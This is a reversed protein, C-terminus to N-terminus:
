KELDELSSRHEALLDGVLKPDVGLSLLQSAIELVNAVVYKQYYTEAMAEEMTDVDEGEMQDEKDEAENDVVDNVMEVVSDSCEDTMEDFTMNLLLGVETVAWLCRCADLEEDGGDPLSGIDGDALALAIAKFVFPRKFFLNTQMATMAAQIRNRGEEPIKCSFDSELDMVLVEPDEAMDSGYKDIAIAMLVFAFTGRSALLRAAARRDLKSEGESEEPFLLEM